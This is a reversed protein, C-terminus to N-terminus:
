LPHSFPPPQTPPPFAKRQITRVKEQLLSQDLAPSAGLIANLNARTRLTDFWIVLGLTLTFIACLVVAYGQARLWGKNKPLVLAPLSLTFTVFVLVANIVGATLPCEGLLLDQAVNSITPTSRILSESILSFSIILAGTLLFLLSTLLYTLTIKNM